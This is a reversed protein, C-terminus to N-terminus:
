DLGHPNMYLQRSTPLVLLSRAALLQSWLYVTARIGSLEHARALKARSEVRGVMLTLSNQFEQHQIAVEMSVPERKLSDYQKTSFAFM